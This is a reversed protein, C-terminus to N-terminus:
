NLKDTLVDPYKNFVEPYITFINHADLFGDNIIEGDVTRFLLHHGDTLLTKLQSEKYESGDVFKLTYLELEEVDLNYLCTKEVLVGYRKTVNILDEKAENLINKLKDM